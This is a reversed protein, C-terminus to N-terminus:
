VKKKSSGKAPKSARSRKVSPKRKGKESQVDVSAFDGAEPIEDTVAATQDALLKELEAMADSADASIDVAASSHTGDTGDTAASIAAELVSLDKAQYSWQASKRYKKRIGSIIGSLQEDPPTGDIGDVFPLCIQTLSAQVAKVLFGRGPPLEKKVTFTGRVGM